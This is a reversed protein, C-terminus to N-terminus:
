RGCFAKLETISAADKETAVKQEAPLRSSVKGYLESDVWVLNGIGGDGKLFQPSRIYSTSVGTIGDCQRGGARNALSDWTDGNPAVAKSNRSMIGIGQVEDIWFALNQFCGCSTHPYGRLSHLYVRNLKGGTLQRYVQNCGEYEGKSADIIKGKPFVLKLPLDQESQRQFPKASRGIGFFSDAKITSYTRSACMPIHGPTVICTHDLSFPRCEICVCFDETNEENMNDIMERRAAKYQLIGAIQEQLASSDLIIKVSIQELRPYQLRIGALIVEGLHYPDVTQGPAVLLHFRDDQEFAKVGPLYNLSKLAVREVTQTLDLSLDPHTVEILVGMQDALEGVVSVGPQAAQTARLCFFSHDGAGFTRGGSVAENVFAPNCDAPLSIVEDLYYRLRLNPFHLGSEVLQLPNDTAIRTGYPFPFSPPVLAPAGLKMMGLAILYKLPDLDEAIIMLGPMDRELFHGMEHDDGPAIRGWILGYRVMLQLFYIPSTPRDGIFHTNDIDPVDTFVMFDKAKLADILQLHLHGGLVLAWGARWKAGTFVLSRVKSDTLFYRDRDPQAAEFLEAALLVPELADKVDGDQSNSLSLRLAELDLNENGLFTTKLPLPYQSGAFSSITGPMISLLQNIAESKM